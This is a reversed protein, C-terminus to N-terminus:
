VFVFPLLRVVRSGTVRTYFHSGCAATSSAPSVAPACVGGSPLALPRLTPGHGRSPQGPFLGAPALLLTRCLPCFSLQTAPPPARLGPEPLCLLGCPPQEMPPSSVLRPPRKSSPEHRRGLRHSLCPLRETGNVCTGERQPELCRSGRLDLLDVRTNAETPVGLRMELLHARGM